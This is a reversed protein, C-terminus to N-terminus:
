TGFASYASVLFDSIAAIGGCVAGAIASFSVPISFQPFSNERLSLSLSDKAAQALFTPRLQCVLVLLSVKNARDHVDSVVQGMVFFGLPGVYDLIQKFHIIEVLLKTCSECDQEKLMEAHLLILYRFRQCRM